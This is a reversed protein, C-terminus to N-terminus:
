LSGKPSDQGAYMADTSSVIDRNMHLAATSLTDRSTALLKKTSASAKSLMSATTSCTWISPTGCLHFCPVIKDRFPGAHTVESGHKDACSLALGRLAM